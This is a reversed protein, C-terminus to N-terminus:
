AQGETWKALLSELAQAGKYGSFDRQPADTGLSKIRQVEFRAAMVFGRDKEACEEFVRELNVPKGLVTQDYAKALFQTLAKM